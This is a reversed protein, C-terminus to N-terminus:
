ILTSKLLLDFGDHEFLNRTTYIVRKNEEDIFKEFNEDNTVKSSLDEPIIIAECFIEELDIVDTNYTGTVKYFDYYAYCKGPREPDEEVVEGMVGYIAQLPVLDDNVKAITCYYDGDAYTIIKDKIDDVFKGDKIIDENGHYIGLFMDHQFSWKKNFVDNFSMFQYSELDDCFSRKIDIGIVQSFEKMLEDDYLDIVSNNVMWTDESTVYRDNDIYRDVFSPSAIKKDCRIYRINIDTICNDIDTDSLPKIEQGHIVQPGYYRMADDTTESWIMNTIKFIGGNTNAIIEVDGKAIFQSYKSEDTHVTVCIEIKGILKDVDNFGIVYRINDDGFIITPTVYKDSLKLPLLKHLDKLEKPM